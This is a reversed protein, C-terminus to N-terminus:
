DFSSPDWVKEELEKLQGLLQSAKMPEQFVKLRVDSRPRLGGEFFSLGDHRWDLRLPRLPGPGYNYVIAFHREMEPLPPGDANGPPLLFPNVGTATPEADRFM